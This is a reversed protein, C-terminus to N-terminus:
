GLSGSYCLWRIQYPIKCDMVDCKKICHLPWTADPVTVFSSMGGPNHSATLIFAGYAVRERVICSVAPTSILANQGVWVRSLYVFSAIINRVFSVIYVFRAVGNAAAMRIIIQAADKCYFRGDGGVVLTSGKVKEVPLANFTAQVFNALYNEQQFVTTKKRLGSTGPKQGEYPKTQVVTVETM